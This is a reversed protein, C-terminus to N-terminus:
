LHYSKSTSSQAFVLSSFFLLTYLINKAMNISLFWKFHSLQITDEMVVLSLPTYLATTFAEGVLTEMVRVVLNVHNVQHAIYDLKYNILMQNLIFILGKKLLLYLQAELAQM